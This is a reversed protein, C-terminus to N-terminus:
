ERGQTSHQRSRNARGQERPPSIARRRPGTGYGQHAPYAAASAHQTTRGRPPFATGGGRHRLLAIPPPQASRRKEDNGRAPSISTSRSIQGGRAVPLLLPNVAM